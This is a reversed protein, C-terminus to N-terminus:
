AAGGETPRDASEPLTQLAVLVAFVKSAGDYQEQGASPYVGGATRPIEIFFGCRVCEAGMGIEIRESRCEHVDFAQPQACIPCRLQEIKKVLQKTDWNFTM